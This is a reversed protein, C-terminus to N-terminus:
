GHGVCKEHFRVPGPRRGGGLYDTFGSQSQQYPGSIGPPKGALVSATQELYYGTEQKSTQWYAFACVLATLLICVVGVLLLHLYIRKKM